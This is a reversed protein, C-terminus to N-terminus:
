IGLFTGRRTYFSRFKSVQCEPLVQSVFDDIIFSTDKTIHFYLLMKTKYNKQSEKNLHLM